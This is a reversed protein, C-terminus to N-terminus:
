GTGRLLKKFMKVAAMSVGPAIMLEGRREVEYGLSSYFPQATLSSELVLHDLGHRLAMREIEAVLAAGVGQRAASPHVYCARLESNSLVLAGIGVARNDIAALLGIEGDQNRLFQEVAAQTIPLPAWARTVAEPYHQRALGRVSQRQVELFSRADRDDTRLLRIAATM